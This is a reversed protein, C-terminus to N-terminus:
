TLRSTDIDGLAQRFTGDDEIEMVGDRADEVVADAVDLLHQAAQPLRRREAHPLCALARAADTIQLHGEAALRAVLAVFRAVGIQWIGSRVVAQQVGRLRAEQAEAMLGNLAEDVERPFGADEGALAVAADVQARLDGGPASPAVVGGLLKLVQGTM